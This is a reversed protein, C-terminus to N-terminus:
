KGLKALIRNLRYELDSRWELSDGPSTLRELGLEIWYKALEFNKARHECYKALEIYAYGENAEVAAQWLNVAAQYQDMQKYLFSLRRMTALKAEWPLDLELAHEFIQVAESKRGLSEHLIGISVIDLMHTDPKGIPHDLLNAMHNLLAAMALIDKANHYFVSKILRADGTHLYDQYLQPIVWGPIDEQSRSADLIEAELSILTRSTLRRSWLRRALHLLDLHTSREFPSTLGNIIFRNNLIPIDFAKGNFSVIYKHNTVTQSVAALTATEEGPSQVFYQEIEFSNDHFHGIGIMFALIGAGVGLGTTETDIYVFDEPSATTLEETGCWAALLEPANTFQLSVAGYTEDLSVTERVLYASGYITNIEEGPIVNALSQVHKLLSTEPKLLDGPGIKVGLAKLRDSLTPM